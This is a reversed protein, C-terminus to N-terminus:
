FHGKFSLCCCNPLRPVDSFFLPVLKEALRWMRSCCHSQAGADLIAAGAGRPPPRKVYGPPRAAGRALPSPGCGTRGERGAAAS